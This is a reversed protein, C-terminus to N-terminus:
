PSGNPGSGFLAATKTVSAISCAAPCNGPGIRPISESSPLSNMLAWRNSQSSSRLTAGTLRSESQGFGDSLSLPRTSMSALCLRSEIQRIRAIRQRISM